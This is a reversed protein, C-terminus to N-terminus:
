LLEPLRLQHCVQCRRCRCEFSFILWVTTSLFKVFRGPDKADTLWGIDVRKLTIWFICLQSEIGLLLCTQSVCPPSTDSCYSNKKTVQHYRKLFEKRNARGNMKRKHGTHSSDLEGLALEFCATRAAAAINSQWDNIMCTGAPDTERAM